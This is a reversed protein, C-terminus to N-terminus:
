NGAEEKQITNDITEINEITKDKSIDYWKNLSAVWLLICLLFTIAFILWSSARINNKYISYIFLIMIMGFFIISTVFPIIYNPDIKEIGIVASSIISITLVISIITAMISNVDNKIRKIESKTKSLEKKQATNQSITSNIRNQLEIGSKNNREYKKNEIEYIVNTLIYQLRMTTTSIENPTSNKSSDYILDLFMNGDNYIKELEEISYGKLNAGLYKNCFEEYVNENKVNTKDKELENSITQNNLEFLYNKKLNGVNNSNIKNNQESM